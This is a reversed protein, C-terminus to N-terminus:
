REALRRFLGTLMMIEEDSLSSLFLIRKGLEFMNKRKHNPIGSKALLKSYYRLFIDTVQRTKKHKPKGERSLVYLIIAAAHSINLVNYRTGTEITVLLDCKKIEENTLGSGERGLILSLRGKPLYETLTEPSISKRLFNSSRKAKVSSTAILLDNEQRLKELTTEESDELVDCGHSAYIKATEFNFRPEIFYLKKVGFNKAIRAIYGVNVAYQPEVVTLSFDEPIM